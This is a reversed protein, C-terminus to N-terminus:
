TDTSHNLDGESAGEPEGVGSCAYLCVKVCFMSSHLGLGGLPFGGAEM